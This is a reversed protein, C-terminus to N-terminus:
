LFSLIGMEIFAVCLVKVKYGVSKKPCVLAKGFLNQL